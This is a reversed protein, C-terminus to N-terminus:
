AADVMAGLEPCTDVLLRHVLQKGNQCCIDSNTVYYQTATLNRGQIRSMAEAVHQRTQGLELRERRMVRTSVGRCHKPGLIGTQSSKTTRRTQLLECDNIHDDIPPCGFRQSREQHSELFQAHISHLKAKIFAGNLAHLFEKTRHRVQLLQVHAAQHTRRGWRNESAQRAVQAAQLMAVQM